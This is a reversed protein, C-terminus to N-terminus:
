PSIWGVRMVLKSGRNNMIPEFDGPFAPELCLLGICKTSSERSCYIVAHTTCAQSRPQSISM